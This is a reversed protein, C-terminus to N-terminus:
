MICVYFEYILPKSIAVFGNWTNYLHTKLWYLYSITTIKSAINKYYQELHIYLLRLRNKILFYSLWLVLM